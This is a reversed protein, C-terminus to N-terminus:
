THICLYIYRNSIYILREPHTIEMMEISDYFKSWEIDYKLLMGKLFFFVFIVGRVQAPISLRMPAISEM